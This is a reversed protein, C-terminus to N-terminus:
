PCVTPPKRCRNTATNCWWGGYCGNAQCPKNSTKCSTCGAM